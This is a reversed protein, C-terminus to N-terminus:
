NATANLTINFPSPANPATHEFQLTATKAGAGSRPDFRLRYRIEDGAQMLADGLCSGNVEQRMIDALVPHFNLNINSTGGACTHCYSMITGQGCSTSSVCSGAFCEDLPPCLEHTHEAGFNHGLEHAVVIFDWAIASANGTWTGWNINARLNGSVGFGFNQNCIVGLYARGGGINAGSLFHALDASVPWTNAGDSWASKFEALMAATDGPGDPTTWGDNSDTHIGLYAISLTTQVDEFYQDSIAAVLSTVYDTLDSSSNFKEYLQFDTEIALRCNAVTTESTGPTSGITPIGSGDPPLFGMSALDNNRTTGPVAVQGGCSTRESLALDTLGSEHIMRSMAPSTASARSESAIHIMNDTAQDLKIFGQPGAEGTFAIFAKAGPMEVVSGRWTSLDSILARPGGPVTVGDVSLIADSAIPLEIRELELTVDGLGDPLPFGHFRVRDVLSLDLLAAEDLTLSLGPQAVQKLESTASAAQSDLRRFPAALDIFESPPTLGASARTGVELSASEVELRFDTENAGSLTPQNLDMAQGGSNTVVLLSGTNPGADNVGIGLSMVDGAGAHTTETGTPGSTATIVATPASEDDTINVVHRTPGSRDLEDLGNGTIHIAFYEMGESDADDLVQLTIIQQAGAATGAPFQIPTSAVAVYDAGSDATGTGDDQLVTDIDFGLTAGATLGLTVVVDYSASSEDPTITSTTDFSLSAVQADNIELETQTIGVAAAGSADSLGFRVIENAGEATNDNLVSLDVNVTDGSVSGVPFTVIFPAFAGYDSGSTANGTGLDSVTVAIEESTEPQETVLAVVLAGSGLLESGPFTDSAFSVVTPNSEVDVEGFGSCGASLGALSGALLVAAHGKLDVSSARRIRGTGNESGSITAM